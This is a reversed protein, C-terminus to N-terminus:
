VVTMHVAILWKGSINRLILLNRGVAIQGSNNAQYKCVLTALECSVNMSLIEVSDIHRGMNMGNQFNAILKDRGIAELGAVHSSIYQADGTYLPILNQANRSNYAVKWKETNTRFKALLTQDSSENRVQAHANFAWILAILYVTFSKLHKMAKVKIGNYLLTGLALYTSKFHSRDM